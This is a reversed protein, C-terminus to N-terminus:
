SIRRLALAELALRLMAPHEPTSHGNEWRSLTTQTTDLAAALEVQSMGLDRRLRTWESPTDPQELPAIQPPDDRVDGTLRAQERHAQAIRRFHGANKLAIEAGEADGADIAEKARADAKDAAANLSQSLTTM